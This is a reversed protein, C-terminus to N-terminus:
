KYNALSIAEADAPYENKQNSAIFTVVNEQALNKLNESYWGFATEDLNTGPEDLFIV